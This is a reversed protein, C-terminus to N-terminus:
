PALNHSTLELEMGIEFWGPVLGFRNRAKYFAEAITQVGLGQQSYSTRALSKSDGIDDLAHLSGGQHHRWVLCQRGLEIPFELLEKRTIRHLIKNGVVVVILGFGVHGGRVDVDLLIRGYVVM